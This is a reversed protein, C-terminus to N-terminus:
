PYVPNGPAKETAFGPFTRSVGGKLFRDHTRRNCPKGRLGKTPDAERKDAGRNIMLFNAEPKASLTLRRSFSWDAVTNLTRSPKVESRIELGSPLNKDRTM